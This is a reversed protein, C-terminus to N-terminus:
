NAIPVDKFAATEPIFIDIANVGEPIRLWVYADASASLRLQFLSIGQHREGFTCRCM